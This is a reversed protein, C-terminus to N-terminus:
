QYIPPVSGSNDEGKPVILIAKLGNDLERLQMDARTLVEALSLMAIIFMNDKFRDVLKCFIESYSKCGLILRYVETGIDFVEEETVSLCEAVSNGNENIDCNISLKRM